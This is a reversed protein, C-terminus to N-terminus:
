NIPELIFDSLTPCDTYTCFIGLGVGGREYGSVSISGVM